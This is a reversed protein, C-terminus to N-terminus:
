LVCFLTKDLDLSSFTGGYFIVDFYNDSFNTKECDMAMFEVGPVTQRAIELSKESLDIGIVKKAGSKLLVSSHVGNGCGFDLITKDQCYEALLRFVYQFSALIRPNFGEFDGGKSRGEARKDYYEIEKEKRTEM